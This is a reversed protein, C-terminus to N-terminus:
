VVGDELESDWYQFQIGGLPDWEPLPDGLWMVRYPHSEINPIRGPSNIHPNTIGLPLLCKAPNGDMTNRLITRKSTPYIQLLRIETPWTCFRTFSDPTRTASGIGFHRSCTADLSDHFRRSLFDYYWTQLILRRDISTDDFGRYKATPKDSSTDLFYVGAQVFTGGKHEEIKWKGLQTDSIEHKSLPLKGKHSYIGDTAFAVVKQPAALAAMLLQSRTYSTIWGAYPLSFYTPASHLPTRGEKEARRKEDRDIAGGVKQILKGYLSNMGLKLPLQAGSKIRKFELRQKYLDNVFMFPRATPDDPVWEYAETVKLCKRLRDDRAIAVIEPQWYWGRLLTPYFIRGRIDRYPLPMFPFDFGRADWQVHYVTLRGHTSIKGSTTTHHRWLGSKMSPLLSAAFPYASNIDHSYITENTNGFKVLEIRGGFYACKCANTIAPDEIKSIHEKVGMKKMLAAAVAGAGDWRTIHIDTTTLAEKLFDMLDVLAFCEEICYKTMYEQDKDEFSNRMAKGKIITSLRPYDKGLNDELAKVFTSQFFGFADYITVAIDPKKNRINNRPWRKITISKRPILQISFMDKDPSVIVITKDEWLLRAQEFNIVYRLIMDIDYQFGFGVHTTTRYEEKAVDCIMNLADLGPNKSYRLDTSWSKDKTAACLLTYDQPLGPGRNM